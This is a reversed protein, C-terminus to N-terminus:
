NRRKDTKEEKRKLFSLIDIEIYEKNTTLIKTSQNPNFLEDGSVINFDNIELEQSEKFYKCCNNDSHIIGM